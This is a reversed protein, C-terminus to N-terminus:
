FLGERGHVTDQPLPKPGQFYTVFVIKFLFHLFPSLILLKNVHLSRANGPVKHEQTSPKMDKPQYVGVLGARCSM